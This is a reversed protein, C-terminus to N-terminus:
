SGYTYSISTSFFSYLGEQRGPVYFNTLSGLYQPSQLCPISNAPSKKLSYLYFKGNMQILWSKTGSLNSDPLWISRTYHPSPEPILYINSSPISLMLFCLPLTKAICRISADPFTSPTISKRVKLVLSKMCALYNSKFM